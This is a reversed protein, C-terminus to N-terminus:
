SLFLSVMELLDICNQIDKKPSSSRKNLSKWSSSVHKIFDLTERGLAGARSSTIILIILSSNQNLFYRYGRLKFGTNHFKRFVNPLVVKSLGDRVKKWNNISLWDGSSWRSCESFLASLSESRSHEPFTKWRRTIPDKFTLELAEKALKQPNFM